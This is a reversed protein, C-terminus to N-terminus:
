FWDEDFYEPFAVWGRRQMRDDGAAPTGWYQGLWARRAVARELSAGFRDRIDEEFSMLANKDGESLWAAAAQGALEGSAVAAAIGAGTVPHTMGAADGVFLVNGAVLDPRLGGVPVGGGTRNLIAAGVRGEDMLKSHLADLLAKPDAGFSKDVGLGLNAVEGKPFLWAYGGSYDSSLWIEAEESAELLPVTYQRAHLMEQRPLGLSRAVFSYPGDAAVLLRYDFRVEGQPTAVIASSGTRDLNVLRSNLFLSAGSEQAQRALAQDFAARDVMLGPFTSKDVRGSPLHSIMGQIRQQLVGEFMAHRALPLPIFEACQVPVGIEKRREVVAVRLGGQAAALAAAGGAPGLGVVLVDVKKRM